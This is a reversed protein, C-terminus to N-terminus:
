LFISSKKETGLWANSIRISAFLNNVKPFCANVEMGEMDKLNAMVEPIGYVDTLIQFLRALHSIKIQWRYDRIKEVFM